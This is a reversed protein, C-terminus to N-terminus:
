ENFIHPISYVAAGGFGNRFLARRVRRRDGRSKVYKTLEQPLFETMGIALKGDPRRSIVKNKGGRPGTVSCLPTNKLVLTRRAM